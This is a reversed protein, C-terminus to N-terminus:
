RENKVENIRDIDRQAINIWEDFIFQADNSGQSGEPNFQLAFVSLSSIEFGEITDDNLNKYTVRMFKTVDASDIVYGHNQSTMMVKNNETNIVPYSGGRHGHPMKKVSAGSALALLECGLSIGFIPLKGMLQKLQAVQYTYNNPNGPGSSLMLADFDNQLIEKAEVSAPYVTVRCNRKALATLISRKAGYDIFAVNIKGQPNFVYRTKPSVESLVEEKIRFGHLEALKEKIFENGVDNSTIFGNMSGCESLKKVLSRTDVDSLAIINKMKLYNSLTDRSKYHSEQKSYNKCVIGILAPNDSEFDFDNIGCNGIEPYAMVVIQKAYAPDSLIEQYGCSASNFVVEGEYGGISGFSEGKIVTGDQLILTGM